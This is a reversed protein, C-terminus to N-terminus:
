QLISLLALAYVEPVSQADHMAAGMLLRYHCQWRRAPWDAFKILTYTSVRAELEQRLAVEDYHIIGHRTLREQLTESLTTPM